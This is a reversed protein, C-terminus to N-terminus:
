NDGRKKNKKFENTYKDYLILVFIYVQTNSWLAATEFFGIIFIAILSYSIEIKKIRNIINILYTFYLFFIIGGFTYLIGLYWSHYNDIIGINTYYNTGLGLIYGTKNISLANIMHDWLEERGTYLSKDSFPITFEFGTKYMNVYIFPIIIGIITIIKLIKKINKKTIKDILPLYQFITYILLALLITRSNCMYISYATVILMFILFIKTTLKKNKNIFAFLICFCLFLSQAVSNPNLAANGALYNNWINFSLFFMRCFILLIIASIIKYHKNDIKITYFILIGLTFNLLNLFSGFGGNTLLISTICIVNMIVVVVFTKNKNTIYEKNILFLLLLLACNVIIPVNINPIINTNLLTYMLIIILNIQERKLIM